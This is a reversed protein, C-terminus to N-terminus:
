LLLSSKSKLAVHFNDGIRLALSLIQFLWRHSSNLNLSYSLQRLLRLTFDCIDRGTSSLNRQAQSAESKLSLFHQTRSLGRQGGDWIPRPLLDVPSPNLSYLCHLGLLYLRNVSSM